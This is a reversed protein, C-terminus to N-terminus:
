NTFLSPLGRNARGYCDRLKRKVIMAFLWSNRYYFDEKGPNKLNKKPLVQNQINHLLRSIIWRM